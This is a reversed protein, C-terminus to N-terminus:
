DVDHGGQYNKILKYLIGMCAVGVIIYLIFFFIFHIAMGNIPSLADKTKFIEYIIWPQRGVETVVWGAELALFGLPTTIIFIKVLWAPYHHVKKIFTFFLYLLSILVLLSGLAVMLQFAYHVIAVPPWNERPFDLLGKVPAAFDHM